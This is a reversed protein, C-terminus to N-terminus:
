QMCLIQLTDRRGNCKMTVDTHMSSKESPNCKCVFQAHDAICSSALERIWKTYTDVAWMYMYFYFIYELRCCSFVSFNGSLEHSHNLNWIYKLM